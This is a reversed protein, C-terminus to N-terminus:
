SCSLPMPVFACFANFSWCSCHLSSRFVLLRSCFSASFSRRNAMRCSFFFVLCLPLYCSSLISKIGRKRCCFAISFGRHYLVPFSEMINAFSPSLAEKFCSFAYKSRTHSSESLLSYRQLFFVSRTCFLRFSSSSRYGFSSANYGSM